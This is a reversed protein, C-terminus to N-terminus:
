PLRERLVHFLEAYEFGSEIGRLKALAMVADISILSDSGRMQTKYCRLAELKEEIFPSVNVYMGGQARSVGPDGWCNMPYEYAMVKEPWPKHSSPRTAAICLRHMTVHDQHSSSLPILIENPEYKAQLNDMWAVLDKSPCQELCGEYQDSFWAWDTVNLKEMSAQFEALRTDGSVPEDEHLFKIRSASAVAVCVMHGEARLRAIYGGCGLEADDCHPAFILVTKM